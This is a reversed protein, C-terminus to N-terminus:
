LGTVLKERRIGTNSKINVPPGCRKNNNKLIKKPKKDVQWIKFLFFPWAETQFIM